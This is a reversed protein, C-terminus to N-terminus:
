TNIIIYSIIDNMPDIIILLLSYVHIFPGFVKPFPWNSQFTNPWTDLYKYNRIKFEPQVVFSLQFVWEESIIVMLDVKVEYKNNITSSLPSRWVM